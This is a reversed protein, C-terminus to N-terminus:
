EDIRNECNHQHYRTRVFHVVLYTKNQGTLRESMYQHRRVRVAILQTMNFASLVSTITVTPVEDGGLRINVVQKAFLRRGVTASM